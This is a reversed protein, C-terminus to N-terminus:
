CCSHPHFPLPKRKIRVLVSCRLELVTSEQAGDWGANGLSSLHLTTRSSHSHRRGDTLEYTVAVETPGKSGTYLHFSLVSQQM